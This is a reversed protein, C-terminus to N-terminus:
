AAGGEGNIGAEGTSSISVGAGHVLGIESLPTGPAHAPVWVTDAAMGPVIELPLTLWGGNGTITVTDALGFEDAVEPSTRALVPKATAQLAPENDVARAGDILERWTALALEGDAPGAVGRNRTLPERAGDWSGLEDLETLAQRATRIGLPRGLADALAALVRLDTMPQNAQRIVTNVTGRRHEWNMFHGPREEILAIPFVVDARETVESLRQELSIVFPALELGERVEGADTFDSPEVGGVLLALGGRAAMLQADADLGVAGPLTDSGWAAQVDVRALVEAVPRGGPLLNPLCGAEVAGRDGARRPIWALRAGTADAFQAAATLAGPIMAARDGILVITDADASLTALVDPETGPVTPIVEAKLKLSGNSAYPALTVVRTGNKRVAKRLRLFIMAAEDEPELAVLIVQKAGQLATYSILDGDLSRGAVRNALFAAEENSHPRSRFDINNTGLVTRAFKAYGYADELTLRGGTLVGIRNGARKLGAAAADIAEPWSAVRLVGNERILPRTLRDDGRAYRFAFRGKDCNWEENVEPADGALRRKVQFHRHDTRLQCGGACHECTTPTSVLDFPRAQFRYSASTLAGVPCIQIVNGSFYSNYPHDEYYGVQQLAGREVLTIFPDGSIQESFRTCRACLICRERDLLIQASISVPKPFTRKVGEYRSEGPGASMAQNQLPCEGGKDCIPCDLPHNILLFEIMGKQAKAAVASSEQTLIKMGPACELTCSAQPKPMGRGNGMDPVEVLCQRCAGVPDLLPHDCFRPIAVGIMEAARIALTGKPVSVETGDIFVTILDSAVVEGPKATVTM